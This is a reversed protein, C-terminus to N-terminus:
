ATAGLVYRGPNLRGTPDFREKVSRHLAVLAPARGAGNTAGGDGGAGGAGAARGAAERTCHVLGVGLQALWGRPGLEGPLGRLTGPARSLREPGPPAPPGEAPEFAPGLVTRAQEDVDVSYGALNVWVREGDWLVSVPRYLAAALAFPDPCEGVWWADAQPCPRCRLVVEAMLALTGLSGVLLRCLDFGTVNKVLPAGARVLEGRSTVATVELVADRVPGLGLRRYGSHGVSLIGGVTAKEPDGADLSLDQGGAQVAARLEALPTGARVRVIMEAPEHSIVGSPAAVELTGEAVSGGVEWQTRGGACCVPGEPGVEAAFADLGAIGRGIPESVTM